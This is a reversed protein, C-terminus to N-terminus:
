NPRPAWRGCRDMSWSRCARATNPRTWTTRRSSSPSHRRRRSRLDAGLVPPADRSRRRGDARRPVGSRAPPADGGFLGAETEMGVAPAVLTGAERRFQLRDLLTVARRLMERRRLGYIGAYLRINELVTLDDYLSFRQSMYGIRRKIQEGQRMVDFGAVTGSGSTPYSLGCLMRMATTKGAGNARLFGFIEGAPWTSPSAIPRGRLRRIAQEAGPRIHDTM